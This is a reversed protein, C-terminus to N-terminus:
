KKFVVSNKEYYNLKKYLNQAAVRNKVSTFTIYSIHYQEKLKEVTELLKTAINRRRYKEDVCVYMLYFYYEQKYFDYLKQIWIHGVVKNEMKAILIMNENWNIDHFSPTKEINVEPFCRKILLTTEYIDEEKLFEIKM